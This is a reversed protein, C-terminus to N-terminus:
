YERRQRAAAIDLQQRYKAVTRRSITISNKKLQEVIQDDNLPATKDEHGVIERVMEKVSDWSTAEGNGSDTGGTFFQRIPFIGRPTQMYKEAVTRSITSPDCGFQEALESMRLVKLAQPGHELFAGQREVVVKALELLRDRRYKIADILAGASEVNRRIFDRASKDGQRESLMRRYMPSIRLRPNNGRALRVTYNEGDEDYEVLVDPMIRPVERSAITSGPHPMLKRMAQVAQKIEDMTRGTAKVIAPYRNKELDVLHREVLICELEHDGPLARLQLLLCERLDRAGVGTPELGQVLGIARELVDAELAPHAAEAITELDTRLYGDDEIYDIVHTGARLTQEDTEVFAWQGTLYEQLSIPRSATNAMADMKADRETAARTSAYSRDGPDFDYERSLRDLRDFGSAEAVSTDGNSPADPIAPPAVEEADPSGLEELVPNQEMEQNIRAELAMLPLQLVEMSQILQPTLRQEQRLALMPVMSMTQSM